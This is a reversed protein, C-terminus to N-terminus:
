AGAESIKSRDFFSRLIALHDPAFVASLALWAALFAAGAIALDAVVQIHVFSLVAVMALSAVACEAVARDVRPVGYRRTVMVFLVLAELVYAASTTIAAGTPGLPPILVLNLGINFVAAAVSAIVAAGTAHRAVLASTALSGFAFALPAPALWELPESGSAAYKSGFIVGIIDYSRMLVAVAFPFYAVAVISM